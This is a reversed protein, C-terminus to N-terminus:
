SKLLEKRDNLKKPEMMITGFVIKTGIEKLSM